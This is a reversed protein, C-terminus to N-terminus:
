VTEASNTPTKEVHDNILGRAIAKRRDRRAQARDYIEAMEECLAFIGDWGSDASPDQTVAM